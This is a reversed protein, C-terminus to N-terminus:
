SKTCIISYITYCIIVVEITMYFLMYLNKTRVKFEFAFLKLNIIPARIRFCYLPMYSLGDIAEVIEKLELDVKGNDEFLDFHIMRYCQTAYFLHRDFTNSWKKTLLISILGAISVGIYIIIRIGDGISKDFVFTAAVLAIFVSNFMLRENEAHRAHALNEKMCEMAFERQDTNLRAKEQFHKWLSHKEVIIDMFKDMLKNRNHRRCM